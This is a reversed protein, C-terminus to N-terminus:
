HILYSTLLCLKGMVNAIAKNKRRENTGKKHM